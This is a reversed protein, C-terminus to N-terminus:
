EDVRIVLYQDDDLQLAYTGTKQIKFSSIIDGNEKTMATCENIAQASEEYAYFHEEEGNEGKVKVSKTSYLSFPGELNYNHLLIHITRKPKVVTTFSDPILITGKKTSSQMIKADRKNISVWKMTDVPAEYAVYEHNWTKQYREIDKLDIAHEEMDQASLMKIKQGYVRSVIFGTLSTGNKLIVRDKFQTQEFLSADAIKESRISIIDANPVIHITGKDRTKIILGIGLQQEMIWGEYREGTKLLIIDMIGYPITDQVHKETKQVSSWNLRYTQPTFSIAVISDHDNENIVYLNDYPVGDFDFSNFSVFVTDGKDRFFSQGLCPLTSFAREEVRRNTIKNLPLRLTAREAYVSISKGPIQESIYGEYESGDSTYVTEYRQACLSVAYLAFSLLIIRKM